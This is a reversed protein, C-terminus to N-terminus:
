HDFDKRLTWTVRGSVDNCSSVVRFGLVDLANLIVCPHQPFVYGYPEKNTGPSFNSLEALEKASILM